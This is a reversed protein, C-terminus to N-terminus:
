EVKQLQGEGIDYILGHLLLEKKKVKEKIFDYSFLNQVQHKISIKAFEEARKEQSDFQNIIQKNDQYIKRLGELWPEMFPIKQEGMAAMIGGCCTHGCVIINKVKLAEVGYYLVSSVSIDEKSVVNAINRHVFIEGSSSNTMECPNVRSDACGIWLFNPSQGKSLNNFFDNQNSKKKEAWKKNKDMLDNIQKCM